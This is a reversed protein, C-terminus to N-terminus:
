EGQRHSSGLVESSPICEACGRTCGRSGHRTGAPVPECPFWSVIAEYPCRRVQALVEGTSPSYVPYTRGSRAARWSGNIWGQTRWLASRAAMLSRVRGLAQGEPRQARRQTYVYVHVSTQNALWAGVRFSSMNEFLSRPGSVTKYIHSWKWIPNKTTSNLYVLYM